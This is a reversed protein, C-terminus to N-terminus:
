QSGVRAVIEFGGYYGNHENHSSVVLTDISTIIRLFQIEHVEYGEDGDDADAIEINVLTSGIYYDLEEQTDDVTMYRSECCSQGDDFLQLWHGGKFGIGLTDDSILKISTITKGLSQNVANVTSQNGGLMSLMVGMGLNDM